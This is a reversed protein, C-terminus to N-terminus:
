YQGTVQYGWSGDFPHHAVPLIELWNFHLAKMHEILPTALERYGLLGGEMTRRWSPLHAEYIAMPERRFTDGKRMGRRTELWEADNWEFRTSAENSNFGSVVTTHAPPVEFQQGFPDIKDFDDGRCGKIRYMYKSGLPVHSM